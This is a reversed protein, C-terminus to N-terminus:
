VSEAALTDRVGSRWNRPSISDLLAFFKDAIKDTSADYRALRARKGNPAFVAERYQHALEAHYARAKDHAAQWKARLALFQLETTM